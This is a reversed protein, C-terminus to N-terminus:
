DDLLPEQHMSSTLVFSRVLDRHYQPYQKAIVNAVRVKVREHYALMDVDSMMQQVLQMCLIVFSATGLLPEMWGWSWSSVEWMTEMDKPEPVDSQVFNHNFWEVASRNFVLPVSVVGATIAMGMGMAFPLTATTMQNQTKKAIKEVIKQAQAYEVHDIRMVERALREACAGHNGGDALVILLENSYESYTSPMARAVELTPTRAAQGDRGRQQKPPPKGPKLMAYMIGGVVASVATFAVIVAVDKGRIHGNGNVPEAADGPAAAAAGAAEDGGGLKLALRHFMASMDAAPTSAPAAFSSQSTGKVGQGPFFHWWDTKSGSGLFCTAAVVRGVNRSSKFSGPLFEKDTGQGPSLGIEASSPLNDGAEAPSAFLFDAHQRTRGM